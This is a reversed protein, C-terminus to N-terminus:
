PDTSLAALAAAFTARIRASPDHEPADLLRRAWPFRADSEFGAGFAIVLELYAAIDQELTLGLAEARLMGDDVIATLREAGLGECRAPFCEGLHSVLASRLEAQGRARFADRQQATIIFM